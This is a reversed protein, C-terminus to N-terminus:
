LKKKRGTKVEGGMLRAVLFVGETVLRERERQEGM